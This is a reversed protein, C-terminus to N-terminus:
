FRRTLDGRGRRNRRQLIGYTAVWSVATPVLVIGWMQGQTVGLVDMYGAVVLLSLFLLTAIGLSTWFPRHLPNEIYHVPERSRDLFPIAILILFAVAPFILGGLTESTVDVGLVRFHLTGPILKLLGYIALFYWDPRITPTGPQPPGYKEVPNVPFFAATLTVLGLLLFFLAVSIVAQQPWLPIGLLRQGGEAEPRLRNTWPETHKQKLLILMHLGILAMLALPILFVHFFFFRPITMDSPFDGAFLFRAVGDGVWPISKAIYYGISTATVSFESYPLLYGTFAAFLTLAFLAVGILWNIERPKRYAGTFYVRLMHLVVSGIMIMASWHHIRRVVMGFPTMDIRLVSAFAAPLKKGFLTVERVSPEYLFGLYIGTLVLIVFSFLAIEGLLFSPHTPFAKTLFKNFFRELHLREDFWRYVPHTPNRAM